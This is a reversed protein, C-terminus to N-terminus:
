IILGEMYKKYYEAGEAAYDVSDQAKLRDRRCDLRNQEYGRQKAKIEWGFRQDPQGTVIFFTPTRDSVYINGPGYAQLFVQYECGANVTEAFISDLTVYCLGDAGITGSGVDGFMPSATEYASLHVIGYDRTDVVRSKGGSVQLAGGIYVDERFDGYECNMDIGYSSSRKRGTDSLYQKELGWESYATYEDGKIDTDLDQSFVLRDMILKAGAQKGAGPESIMISAWDRGQADRTKFVISQTNTILKLGANDWIGILTGLADLMKLVGNQNSLGGLELTGGRIRDALMTGVTIFDAVLNGDITWANRYVGNYGSTSFGIGNKNIRIVNKAQDKDPADMWLTEEPYGADSLKMVVYGGLGGTILQTAQEVRQNIERNTSSATQEIKASITAQQRTNTGTLTTLTGGLTIVDQTPDDLHIVKKTILFQKSLGHPASEVTTWYGVRLQEMDVQILSLDVANIQLTLPLQTIEDLYARAKTLLNEPLTVDEWKHTGWIRGYKEIAADNTIYDVGGNVSTIDIEQTGPTGDPNTIDVDAGRPILCTIIQTADRYQSLDLLNEGFRIVQGNSGGYDYIYDLYRKDGEKRARLYGGHTEVLKGRLAELTTSYDSNERRIYNNSDVVTIRGPLFQKRAEVQGNHSDLMQNVFDIISGTYIYPRQQSDLLYALDGECTVSEMGYFDTAPKAMRGFFIADDNDYVVIESELVKLQNYNPHAAHIQFSFTGAAGMEQTLVPSFIRMTDDVPEHLPYEADYNKVYVRYM